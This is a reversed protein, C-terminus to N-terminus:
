VDVPLLGYRSTRYINLGTSRAAARIQTQMKGNYQGLPRNLVIALVANECHYWAEAHGNDFKAHHVAAAYLRRNEDYESWCDSRFHRFVKQKDILLGVSPVSEQYGHYPVDPDYVMGNRSAHIPECCAEDTRTYEYQISESLSVHASRFANMWRVYCYIDHSATSKAM